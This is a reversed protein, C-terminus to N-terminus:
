TLLLMESRASSRLGTLTALFFQKSEPKKASRVAIWYSQSNTDHHRGGSGDTARKKQHANWDISSTCVEQLPGQTTPMAM